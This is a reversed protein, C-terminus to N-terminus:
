GIARRRYIVVGAVAALALIVAGFAILSTRSGSTASPSESHSANANGQENSVIVAGTRPTPSPVVSATSSPTAASTARPTAQVGAVVNERPPTPAVDDSPGSTPPASPTGSPETAPMTTPDSPAAAPVSTSSPVPTLTSLPPTASPQQVVVLTPTPPVPTPSPPTPCLEGPQGPVAGSSIGGPGWAWGDIDGDHVTRSAAGIQSFKWAGSVFQYYAWYACSSGTCSAFCNTPDNSGEGDISCVAAGLGSASSTVLPLGSRQLLQLGSITDESFEICFAQTHRDGFTVVLGAHHLATNAADAASCRPSATTDVVAARASAGNALACLAVFLTALAVPAFLRRSM